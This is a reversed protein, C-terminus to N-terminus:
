ASTRSNTIVPCFNGNSITFVLLLFARGLDELVDRGVTIYAKFDRRGIRGILVALNLSATLAVHHHPCHHM